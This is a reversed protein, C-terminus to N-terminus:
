GQTGHARERRQFYQAVIDDSHTEKYGSDEIPRQPAQVINDGVARPLELRQMHQEELSTYGAAQVRRNLASFSERVAKSMGNRRAIMGQVQDRTEDDSSFRILDKRQLQCVFIAM